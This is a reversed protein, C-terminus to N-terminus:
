AQRSILTLWRVQATVDAVTSAVDALHDGDDDWRTGTIICVGALPDPYLAPHSFFYQGAKLLGEEDIWATDGNDLELAQVLDCGIHRYYQQLTTGDDTLTIASVTRTNPDIKIANFQTTM